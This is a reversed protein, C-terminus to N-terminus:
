MAVIVVKFPFIDEFISKFPALVVSGIQGWAKLHNWDVLWFARWLVVSLHGQLKLEMVNLNQSQM